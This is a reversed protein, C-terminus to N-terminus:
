GSPVFMTRPSLLFPEGQLAVSKRCAAREILQSVDSITSDKLLQQVKEGYLSLREQLIEYTVAWESWDLGCVLVPPEENRQYFDYFIESPICYKREFILLDEKMAQIDRMLDDIDM